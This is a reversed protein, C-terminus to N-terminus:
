IDDYLSNNYLIYSISQKTFIFNNFCIEIDMNEQLAIRTVRAKLRHTPAIYIDVIILIIYGTIADINCTQSFSLLIVPLVRVESEEAGVNFSLHFTLLFLKEEICLM